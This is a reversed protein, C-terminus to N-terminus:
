IRQMTWRTNGPSLRSLEEKLLSVMKSHDETYWSLLTSMEENIERAKETNVRGVREKLALFDKKSLHRVVEPLTISPRDGEHAAVEILGEVVLVTIDFAHGCLRPGQRVSLRDAVVTAMSVAINSRIESRSSPIKHALSM